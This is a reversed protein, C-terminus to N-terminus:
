VNKEIGSFQAKIMRNKGFLDKRLEINIYNYQDLLKSIKKGMKENIEFYVYGKKKLLSKKAVNLIERYYMLPDDNKVFLANHPEYEIVNRRMQPKESELIYPPNSVIVDVQSLYQIPNSSFLDHHFFLVNQKNIKASKKAIDLAVASNDFAFLSANILYKAIAIAICGSGTGIDLISVKKDKFDTIVWQVLEETEPRPILVGPKILISCDYFWCKGLVYQVPKEKKLESVIDTIKDVQSSTLPLDLNKLLGTKSVSLTEELLLYAISQAEKAPYIGTIQSIIYRLCERINKVNVSM